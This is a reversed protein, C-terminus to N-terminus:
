APKRILVGAMSSLSGGALAHRFIVLTAITWLGASVVTFAVAVADSLVATAAIAIIPLGQMMHTAVFHAPRLDSGDLSWGTLWMRRESRPAGDAFHSMAAGMRSATVLTLVAGGLLGFATGLAIARPWPPPSILLESGLVLAPALMMVAGLGMLMYAAAELRTEQNFHSRRGRAAQLFIYALEGFGGVVSALATMNLWEPRSRDATLWHAIVAFTVLYIALSIAFKFPKSWVNVDDLCRKDFRSLLLAVAALTTFVLAAVGWLIEAEIM